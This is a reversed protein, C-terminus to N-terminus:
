SGAKLRAAAPPTVVMCIRGPEPFKNPPRATTSFVTGARVTCSM